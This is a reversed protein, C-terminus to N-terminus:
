KRGQSSRQPLPHRLHHLLIIHNTHDESGVELGRSLGWSRFWPWYRITHCCLLSRLGSIEARSHVFRWHHHSRDRFFQVRWCQTISQGGLLVLLEAYLQLRVLILGLTDNGSSPIPKSYKVKLFIGLSVLLINGLTDIVSTDLYLLLRSFIKSIILM